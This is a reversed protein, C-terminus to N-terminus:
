AHVLLLIWVRIFHNDEVNRVNVFSACQPCKKTTTSGKHYGCNDCIKKRIHILSSCQPCKRTPPGPNTEIDGGLLLLKSLLVAHLYCKGVFSGVNHPVTDRTCTARVNVCLNTFCGIAALYQELSIM